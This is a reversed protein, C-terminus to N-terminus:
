IMLAKTNINPLEEDLKYKKIESLLFHMADKLTQAVKRDYALQQTESDTNSKSVNSETKKAPKETDKQDTPNEVAKNDKTASDAETNVSNDSNSESETPTNTDDEAPEVKAGKGAAIAGDVEPKQDDDNVEPKQDKAHEQGKAHEQDKAHKPEEDHEHGKAHKQGKAHEQGDTTQGDTTQGAAHTQDGVQEQGDTTQDAAKEVSIMTLPPLQNNVADQDSDSMELNALEVDQDSFATLNSKIANEVIQQNDDGSLLSITNLLQDNIEGDVQLENNALQEIHLKVHTALYKPYDDVLLKIEKNEEKELLPKFFDSAQDISITENKVMHDLLASNSKLKELVAYTKLDM